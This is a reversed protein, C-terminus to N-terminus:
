PYCHQYFDLCEVMRGYKDIVYQPNYLDKLNSGEPLSNFISSWVDLSDRYGGILKGYLYVKPIHTNFATLHMNKEVPLIDYETNSLDLLIKLARSFICNHRVLITVKSPYPQTENKMLEPSDLKACIAVGLIAM